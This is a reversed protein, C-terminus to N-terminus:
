DFVVGNVAIGFTFRDIPRPEGAARPKLPMEFRYQQASISNPNGRNPFQGPKHDPLGNAEIIRKEGSVKIVVRSPPDAGDHDPETAERAPAVAVAMAALWTLVLMTFHRM